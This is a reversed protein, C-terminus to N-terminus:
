KISHFISYSEELKGTSYAMSNRNMLGGNELTIKFEDARNDATAAKIFDDNLQYRSLILEDTIIGENSSDLVAEHLTNFYDNANKLNEEESLDNNLTYEYKISSLEGDSTFAFSVFSHFLDDETLSLYVNYSTGPYDPYYTDTYALNHKKAIAELKEAPELNTVAPQELGSSFSINILDYEAAGRVSFSIVVLLLFVFLIKFIILNPLELDKDYAYDQIEPISYSDFNMGYMELELQNKASSFGIFCILILSICLFIMILVPETVKNIELKFPAVGIKAQVSITSFLVISAVILYIFSIQILKRCLYIHKILSHEQSMM